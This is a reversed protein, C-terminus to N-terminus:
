KKESASAILAQAVSSEDLTPFDHELKQEAPMADMARQYTKDYYALVIQCTRAPDGADLAEVAETSRQGGLRKSISLVRERLLDVSHVGYVKVLHDLRTAEPFKLIHYFAVKKRQWLSEPIFRKGITRSEDELWVAAGAPQRHWHLALSNEFQEQTPQPLEGLAGFASGKHHAFGELDLVAEGLEALAHLVKTKGSGTLGAVVLVPHDDFAHNVAWSRFAKYGGRLTSTQVGVQQALWAMSASRMGGRWCHILLKGGAPTALDLMRQGLEALRPGVKALGLLTAPQSGQEKYLTGIEAREEDSFLPLSLAGLLHGQAYESPSRVDVVPTLLAQSLFTQLDLVPMGM